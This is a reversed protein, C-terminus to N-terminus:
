DSLPLYSWVYQIHGNLENNPGACLIALNNANIKQLNLNNCNIHTAISVGAMEIGRATKINGSTAATTVPEQEKVM